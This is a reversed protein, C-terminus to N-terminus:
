LNIEVKEKVEASSTPPHSVGRRPRKVGPFSGTDLLVPPQISGLALQSPYSFKEAVRTRDRVTWGM